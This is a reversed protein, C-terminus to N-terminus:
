RLFVVVGVSSQLLSITELLVTPDVNMQLTRREVNAELMSIKEGRFNLISKLSKPELICVARLTIPLEKAFSCVLHKPRMNVALVPLFQLTNNLAQLSLTHLEINIINDREVSKLLQCVIVNGQSFLRSFALFAGLSTAGPLQLAKMAVPLM